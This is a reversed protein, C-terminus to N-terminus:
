ATADSYGQATCIAADGSRDQQALVNVAVECINAAVSIPAQVVIDSVNVNVLGRQQGRQNRNGDNWDVTADSEALAECEAAEGDRIQEALVNVAVECVNAAVAIPLQVIVDSVNVNVLGEQLDPLQDLPLDPVDLLDEHAVASAPLAFAFMMAMALSLALLPARLTRTM